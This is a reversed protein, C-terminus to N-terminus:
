SAQRGARCWGDEVEEDGLVAGDDEGGGDAAAEVVDGPDNGDGDKEEGDDADRNRTRQQFRRASGEGPM